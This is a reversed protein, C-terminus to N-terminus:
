DSAASYILASTKHNVIIFLIYRYGKPDQAIFRVKGAIYSSIIKKPEEQKEHLTDEPKRNSPLGAAVTQSQDIISDVVSVSRHGFSLKTSQFPAVSTRSVHRFM